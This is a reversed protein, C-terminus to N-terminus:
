KVGFSYSNYEEMAKVAEPPAEDTPVYGVGVVFNYWETHPRFYAYNKDYRM